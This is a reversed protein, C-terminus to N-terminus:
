RRNLPREIIEGNNFITQLDREMEDFPRGDRLNNDIVCVRNYMSPNSVVRVKKNKTYPAVAQKVQHEIRATDRSNTNVAVLVSDRYVLARADAVNAVDAARMAIKEALEGNYRNYYSSRTEANMSNLHGHYNRDNRKFRNDREFFTRDQEAYPVTPNVIERRNIDTRRDVAGGDGGAAGRELFETVPGDNDDMMYANGNNDRNNGYGVNRYQNGDTTEDSYFGIPRDGRDYLSQLEGEYSGCASLGGTLCLMGVAILGKRL